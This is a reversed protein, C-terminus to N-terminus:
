RRQFLWTKLKGLLRPRDAASQLVMWRRKFVLQTLLDSSELILDALEFGTSVRFTFGHLVSQKLIFESLEM